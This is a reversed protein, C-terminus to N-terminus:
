ARRFFLLLEMIAGKKLLNLPCKELTITIFLLQSELFLSCLCARHLRINKHSLAVIKSQSTTGSTFLMINMEENNIIEPKWINKGREGGRTFSSTRLYNHIKEEGLKSSTM